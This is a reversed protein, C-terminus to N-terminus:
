ILDKLDTIVKIGDNEWQPILNDIDMINNSGLFLVPQVDHEAAIKKVLEIPSPRTKGAAFWSENDAIWFDNDNHSVIAYKDTLVVDNDVTYSVSKSELYQEISTATNAVDSIESLQNDIEDDDSIDVVDDDDFNIEKFQPVGNTMDDLDDDIDFDNPIPIDGPTSTNSKPEISQPASMQTANALDFASTTREIHERARAYAVRLESPVTEPVPALTDPKTEPEKAVPTAVTETKTQQEEMPAQQFAHKIFEPIKITFLPEKTKAIVITTAIYMPIMALILVGFVLGPFGHIHAHGLQWWRHASLINFDFMFNM